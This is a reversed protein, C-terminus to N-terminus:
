AVREWKRKFLYEILMEDRVCDKHFIENEKTIWGGSCIRRVKKDCIGCNKNLFPFTTM